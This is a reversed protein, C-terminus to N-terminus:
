PLLQSSICRSSSHHLTCTAAPLCTSYLYAPLRGVFACRRGAQRGGGFDRGAERGVLTRARSYAYISVCERLHTHMYLSLSRSLCLSHSLSLLSLYLSISLSLSVYMDCKLAIERVRFPQVNQIPCATLPLVRRMAEPKSYSFELSTQQALRLRIWPHPAERFWRLMGAPEGLSLTTGNAFRLHAKQCGGPRDRECVYDVVLETAGRAGLTARVRAETAGGWHWGVGQKGRFYAGIDLRFPTSAGCSGTSLFAARDTAHGWRLLGMWRTGSNGLGEWRFGTGDIVVVKNLRRHRAGIRRMLEDICSCESAYAAEQRLVVRSSFFARSM